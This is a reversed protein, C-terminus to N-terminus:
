AHRRRAPASSTPVRPALTCAAIAANGRQDVITSNARAPSQSQARREVAVADGARDVRCARGVRQHLGDDFFAACPKGVVAAMGPQQERRGKAEDARSARKDPQSCPALDRREKRAGQRDEADDRRTPTEINGKMRGEESSGLDLRVTHSADELWKVRNMMSTTVTIKM